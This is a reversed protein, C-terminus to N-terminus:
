DASAAGVTGGVVAGAPGAIMAGGLGGTAARSTATDGCAALTTAILGLAATLKVIRM